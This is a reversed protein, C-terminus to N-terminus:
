RASRLRLYDIHTEPSIPKEQLAISNTLALALCVHVSPSSAAIRRKKGKKKKKEISVGLTALFKVRNKWTKIIM